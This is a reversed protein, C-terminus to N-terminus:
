IRSHLVSDQCLKRADETSLICNTMLEKNLQKRELIENTDKEWLVSTPLEILCSTSEIYNKENQHEDFACGAKM